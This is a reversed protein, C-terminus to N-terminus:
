ESTKFYMKSLAVVQTGRDFIVCFIPQFTRKVKKKGTYEKDKSKLVESLDPDKSARYSEAEEPSIITLTGLMFITDRNAYVDFIDKSVNHFNLLYSDVQITISPYLYFWTTNNLQGKQDPLSTIISKNADPFGGEIANPRGLSKKVEDISMGVSIKKKLSTEFNVLKEVQAASNDYCVITVVFALFSRRLLRWTKAAFLALENFRPNTM